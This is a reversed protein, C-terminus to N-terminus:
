FNLGTAGKAFAMGLGLLINMLLSERWFAAKRSIRWLFTM